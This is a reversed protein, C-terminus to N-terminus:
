TIALQSNYVTLDGNRIVLMRNEVVHYLNVMESDFAEICALQLNANVRAKYEPYEGAIKCSYESGNKVVYEILIGDGFTVAAVPLTTADDHMGCIARLPNALEDRKVVGLEVLPWSVINHVSLYKGELQQTTFYGSDHGVQIARESISLESGDRQM